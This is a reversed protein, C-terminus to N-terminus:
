TFRVVITASVRIIYGVVFIEYVRILEEGQSSHSPICSQPFKECEQRM